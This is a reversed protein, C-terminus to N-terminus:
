ENIIAGKETFGVQKNLKEKLEKEEKQREQEHERIERQIQRNLRVELMIGLTEERIMKLVAKKFEETENIIDNIERCKLSRVDIKRALKEVFKEYNNTTTAAAKVKSTVEDWIGAVRRSDIKDWDMCSWLNTITAIAAYRTNERTIKLM